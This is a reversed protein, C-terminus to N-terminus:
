PLNESVFTISHENTLIETFKWFSPVTKDYTNVVLSHAVGETEATVIVNYYSGSWQYRALFVKMNTKM